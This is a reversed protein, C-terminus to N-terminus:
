HGAANIKPKSGGSVFPDASRSRIETHQAPAAVEASRSVEESAPENPEQVGAAGNKDDGRGYGTVREVLDFFMDKLQMAFSAAM